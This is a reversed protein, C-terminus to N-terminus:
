IRELSPTLEEASNVVRYLEHSDPAAFHEEVLAELQKILHNYFNNSNLIIIPSNIYGLQKLTIVELLEELTGFGGPLAVFLDSKEVMIRKRENMTETVILEDSELFEGHNIQLRHPIVAIVRRGLRKFSRAAEGMLGERGGGFVLDYGKAAFFEACRRAEEFYSEKIRSSSACFICVNM